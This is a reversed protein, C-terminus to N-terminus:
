DDTQQNAMKSQIRQLRHELEAIAGTSRQWAPVSQQNHLAWSTWMEAQELDKAEWECYKALEVYPRPDPGPVSGLWRQWIAVAEPWRERRKLLRGLRFFLDAKAEDDVVSELARRYAKEAAAVDGAQEQAHGLALLDLGKLEGDAASTLPDQFHRCVQEALSVMSVIDELNHYFVRRMAQAQGSRLYQLYLYPILRGPVDAESREHNLVARELNSLACSALRRQWLRRAPHLLDLHPIKKGLLPPDEKGGPLLHRNLQFRGRLLPVDFTRGNFTVLGARAALVDAVATLLATEEGPDRMFFQRVVFHTTPEPGEGKGAQAEDKELECEEFTGIGVMFAYIGAGGGLGTTETDIFAVQRFDFSDDLGADPYLPAIAQPTQALVDGLARHGRATTLPYREMALYCLGSENEIEQGPVLRELWGESADSESPLDPLEPEIPARQPRLNHLRRLRDLTSSM